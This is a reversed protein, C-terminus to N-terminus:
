FIHINVPLPNIAQEKKIKGKTKIGRKKLKKYILVPITLDKDSKVFQPYHGHISKFAEVQTIIDPAGEKFVGTPNEIRCYGNDLILGPKDGLNVKSKHRAKIKTRIHPQDLNVIREECDTKKEHYMELQQNYMAKIVWLKKQLGNPLPFPKGEFKDLLNDIYHFNRKLYSLQKKIAKRLKKKSIHKKMTTKNYECLAIRRYTRPKQRHATIAYLEDIIQESWLRGENILAINKPNKIYQDNSIINTYLVGKNVQSQIKKEFYDTPTSIDNKEIEDCLAQEIKEFSGSKMKKIVPSFIDPCGPMDPQFVNWGLLYQMYPNEQITSVTEELSLKQINKIVLAGLVIRAEKASRYLAGDKLNKKYIKILRDWPLMSSLKVWRNDSKLVINFSTDRKKTAQPKSLIDFREM